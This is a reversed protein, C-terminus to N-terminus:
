HRSGGGTTGVTGFEILSKVYFVDVREKELREFLATVQEETMAMTVEIPQDSLSFFHALHLKSSRGRGEACVMSTGGQIGLSQGLHLLWEHLPQHDRMRSQETFFTVQYGKM